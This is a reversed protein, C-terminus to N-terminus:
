KVHFKRTKRAIIRYRGIISRVIREKMMLQLAVDAKQMYIHIPRLSSTTHKKELM